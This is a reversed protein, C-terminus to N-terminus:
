NTEKNEAIVQSCITQIEQWRQEPKEQKTNKRKLTGPPLIECTFSHRKM